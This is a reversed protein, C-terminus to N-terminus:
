VTALGWFHWTKYLKSPADVKGPNFAQGQSRNVHSVVVNRKYHLMEKHFTVLVLFPYIIHILYPFLYMYDIQVQLLFQSDWYTNILVSLQM